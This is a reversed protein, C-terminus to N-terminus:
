LGFTKFPGTWPCATQTVPARKLELLLNAMQRIFTAMIAFLKQDVTITQDLAARQGIELARSLFDNQNATVESANDLLLKMTGAADQTPSKVLTEARFICDGFMPRPADGNKLCYEREFDQVLLHGMYAPVTFSSDHAAETYLGLQPDARICSLYPSTAENTVVTNRNPVLTHGKMSQALCHSVYCAHTTIDDKYQVLAEPTCVKTTDIPILDPNLRNQDEPDLLPTGDDEYLNIIDACLDPDTTARTDDFSCEVLSITDPNTNNCLAVPVPVTRCLYGRRGVTRSCLPSRIPHDDDVTIGPGTYEFPYALANGGVDPEAMVPYNEARKIDFRIFHPPYILQLGLDDRRAWFAVNPIKKLSPTSFEGVQTPDGTIELAEAIEALTNGVSTGITTFRPDQENDDRFYGFHFRLIVKELDEPSFLALQSALVDIKSDLTSGATVVTGDWPILGEEGSWVRKLLLSLTGLAVPRHPEDAISLEAGNAAMLLDDGLSEADKEATVLSLISSRLDLCGTDSAGVVFEIEQGSTDLKGQCLGDDDGTWLIGLVANKIDAYSLDIGNEGWTRMENIVFDMLKNRPNASEGTQQLDDFYLDFVSALGAEPLLVLCALFLSLFRKM